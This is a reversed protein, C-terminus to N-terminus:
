CQLSPLSRLIIDEGDSFRETRERSAFFSDLRAELTDEYDRQYLCMGAKNREQLCVLLPNPVVALLRQQRPQVHRVVLEEEEVVRLDPAAGHAGLVGEGLDPGRDM